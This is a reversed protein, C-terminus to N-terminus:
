AVLGLKHMMKHLKKYKPTQKIRGAGIDGYEMLVAIDINKNLFVQIFEKRKNRNPFSIYVTDIETGINLLTSLDVFLPNTNLDLRFTAEDMYVSDRVEKWHKSLWIMADNNSAKHMTVGNIYLLPKSTTTTM